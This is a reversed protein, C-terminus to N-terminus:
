REKVEGFPVGYKFVENLAKTAIRKSDEDSTTHKINWLTDRMTVFCADKWTPITGQLLERNRQLMGFLRWCCECKLNYKISTIDDGPALYWKSDEFQESFNLKTVEEKAM